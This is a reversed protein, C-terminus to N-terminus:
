PCATARRAPHPPRPPSTVTRFPAPAGAKGVLTSIRISHPRVIPLDIMAFFDFDFVFFVLFFAFFAGAFFFFREKARLPEALFAARLVLVLAFVLALALAFVLALAFAAGFRLAAGRLAFAAGAGAGM